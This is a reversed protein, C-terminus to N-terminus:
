NNTNNNKKKYIVAGPITLLLSLYLINIKKNSLTNPISIKKTPILNNVLDLNIDKGENNVNFCVKENNLYYKDKVKTQKFCYYGTSLNNVKIKGETNTINTSILDNDKYLEITSGEIYNNLNDINTLIVNSLKITTTLKINKEIIPTENDTNILNICKKNDNNKEKICYNGLPLDEITLLGKEDTKYTNILEDDKYLEVEINPRIDEKKTNTNDNNKSITEQNTLINIKGIIPTNYYDVNIVVQNNIYSYTSNEDIRITIKETSKLYKDPTSAQEIIYEGYSLPVPLTLNGEENTTFTTIKKGDKDTTSIYKNKKKDKVKYKINKEKINEKTKNDKTTIHLISKIQKDILDYKIETKTNEDITINIDKVMDYGYSTTIQKITYTGYPLTVIDKKDKTTTIEKYLNNNNDYINFLVGEEKKYDDEIEYLKNIEINSKIVEEELTVKNNDKTIKVEIINENLKYGTSPKIQKIYYTDHYLNPITNTCSNDTTFTTILNNNKDYLEYKAGTLTAQGSPTCTKNDKDILNTTLTEGSINLNISKKKAELNGSSLLSQFGSAYFITPLNNHFYATKLEITDQGIYNDNINIELTNDNPKKITEKGPNSVKYLMLSKDTLTVTDGIKCNISDNINPTSQYLKILDKIENKYSEINIKPGNIDLENTWNIDINNLYEWILEQSAMYYKYDTHNRFGYGFHTILKLYNLKESSINTIKSAQNIDITANYTDSVKKGIEICYATETGIKYIELNYLHTKDSLPAVAYIGDIKNRTLTFTGASVKVIGIIAILTILLILSKVRKPHIKKGKM